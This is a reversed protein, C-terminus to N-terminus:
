GWVMVFRLREAASPFVLVPWSGHSWAVGFRDLEAALREDDAGCAGVLNLWAPNARDQDMIALGRDDDVIM